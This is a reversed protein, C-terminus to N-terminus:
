DERSRGGRPSLRVVPARRGLLGKRERVACRARHRRFVAVVAGRAPRPAQRRGPVRGHRGPLRQRLAREAPRCGHLFRDARVQLRPPQRPLPPQARSPAAHSSWCRSRSNKSPCTRRSAACTSRASTTRWRRCRPEARIRVCRVASIVSWYITRTTSWSHTSWFQM